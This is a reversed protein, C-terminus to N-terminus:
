DPEDEAEPPVLLSEGLSRILWRHVEGFHQEWGPSWIMAHSADVAVFDAGVNQALKRASDIPTIEDAKGGVVLAPVPSAGPIGWDGRLLHEVFVRPESVAEGPVGAAFFSVGAKSRPAQLAEREVWPLWRRPLRIPLPVHSVVPPILPALAVAARALSRCRLVGWAGLDHGILVPQADLGLILRKLAAEYEASADASSIWRERPMTLAHCHWGRHALFGMARRWVMSTAWLGHVLVLPATFKNGEGAVSEVRLGDVDRM